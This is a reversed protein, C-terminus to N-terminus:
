ATDPGTLEELATLSNNSGVLRIALLVSAIPRLVKLTREQGTSEIPRTWVALSIFSGVLLLACAFNYPRNSGVGGFGFPPALVPVFATGCALVPVLVKAPIRSTDTEARDLPTSVARSVALVSCALLKVDLLWPLIVDRGQHAFAQLELTITVSSSGTEVARVANGPTLAKICLGVVAISLAMLFPWPTTECARLNLM